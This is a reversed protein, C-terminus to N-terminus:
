MFAYQEHRFLKYLFGLLMQIEPDDLKCWVRLKKDAGSTGKAHVLEVEALNALDSGLAAYSKGDRFVLRHEAVHTTFNTRKVIVRKQRHLYRLGLAIMLPM